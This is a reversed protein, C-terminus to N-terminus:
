ATIEAGFVQFSLDATAAYVTLVDADNMTLGLTLAVSDNAPISADFALYHKDEQAAGDPRISLRYTDASGALNTIIISSIVTETESPVTYVDGPTAASPNLQGLVKYNTPM